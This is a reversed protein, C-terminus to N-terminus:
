RPEGSLRTMLIYGWGGSEGAREVRPTAVPLGGGLVRLVREEVAAHTRYPPPYLKLVLHDGVSYVPLSGGAFRTMRAGALGLRECLAVVGPRLRAEDRRIDSFEEAATSAPPWSVVSM